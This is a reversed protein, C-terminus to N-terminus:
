EKTEQHSLLFKTLVFSLSGTLPYCVEYLFMKRRGQPYLYREKIKRSLIHGSALHPWPLFQGRWMASHGLLLVGCSKALLFYWYPWRLIAMEWLRKPSGLISHNKFSTQLM